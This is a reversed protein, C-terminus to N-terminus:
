VRPADGVSLFLADGSAEAERALAVLCGLPGRWSEVTCAELLQERRFPNGVAGLAERWGRVWDTLLAELAPGDSAALAALLSPSVRHLTTDPHPRLAEESAPGPVGAAQALARLGQPDLGPVEAFGHRQRAAEADATLFPVMQREGSVPDVFLRGSSDHGGREHVATWVAFADAAPCTFLESPGSM